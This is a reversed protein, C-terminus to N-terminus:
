AELLKWRGSETVILVHDDIVLEFFGEPLDKPLESSRYPIGESVAGSDKRLSSGTGFTSRSNMRM